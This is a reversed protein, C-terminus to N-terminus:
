AKAEREIWERWLKVIRARTAADAEAEFGLDRDAICMLVEDAEARVDPDDHDLLPLVARAVSKDKVLALVHLALELGRRDLRALESALRGAVGPQPADVLLNALSFLPKKWGSRVLRLAFEAVPIAGAAELARLTQLAFSKQRPTGAGLLAALKPLNEELAGAVEAPSRRLLEPDVAYEPEQDSRPGLLRLTAGEREFEVTRLLASEVQEALALPVELAEGSSRVAVRGRELWAKLSELYEAPGEIRLFEEAAATAAARDHAALDEVLDVECDACRRAGEMYENRCKPCWPM